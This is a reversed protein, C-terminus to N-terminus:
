RRASRRRHWRLVTAMAFSAAGIAGLLPLPSATQPLRGPLSEEDEPTAPRGALPTAAVPPDGPRALVRVESAVRGTGPDTSTVTVRQGERLESLLVVRDDSMRISADDQLVYEIREGDDAQITLKHGPADISTVTGTFTEAALGPSALCLAFAAGLAARLIRSMMM